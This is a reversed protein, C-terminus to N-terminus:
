RDCPKMEGIEYQRMAQYASSLPGRAERVKHELARYGMDIAFDELEDLREIMLELEDAVTKANADFYGPHKDPATTM